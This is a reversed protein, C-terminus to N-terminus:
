PGVAGATVGTAHWRSIELRMRRHEIARELVDLLDPPTFPKTLYDFAGKKMAQIASPVTANGTILIVETLPSDQKSQSLVALGDIGPMWLDTMLVDVSESLKHLADRGSQARLVSYGADELADGIAQLVSPEDEALLISARSPM